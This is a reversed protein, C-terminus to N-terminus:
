PLALLSGPEHAQKEWYMRRYIEEQVGLLSFRTRVKNIEQLLTRDDIRRLHKNLTEYDINEPLRVCIKSYDRIDPFPLEVQDALLVPVTNCHFAEFFRYSSLGAGRPCLTFCFSSMLKLFEPESLKGASTDHFYYGPKDRICQLNSRATSNIQGVFGAFHKKPVEVPRTSINWFPVVIDNTLRRSTNFQVIFVWPFEIFWAYKSAFDIDHNWQVILRKGPYAESIKEILPRILDFRNVYEFLELYISCVLFDEQAEVQEFLSFNKYAQRASRSNECFIDTKEIVDPRDKIYAQLHPMIDWGLLHVIENPQIVRFKLAPESM